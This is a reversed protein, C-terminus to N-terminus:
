GAAPPASRVGDLFVSVIQRAVVEPKREDVLSSQIATRAMGLFLEACLKTDCPRLAGARAERALASAIASSADARRERWAEAEVHPLRHEYRQLLAFFESRGRFYALMRTLADTLIQELPSVAEFP